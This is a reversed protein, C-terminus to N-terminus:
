KDKKEYEYRELIKGFRYSFFLTLFLNHNKDTDMIEIKKVFAELLIGAELAKIKQSEKGFEFNVALKLFAGPVVSLEDLGELFSARAYIQPDKKIDFKEVNIVVQSGSVFELVEYYIPKLVSLSAGFLGILNIEVGGKDKKSFRTQKWGFATRLNVCINKKGYVFRKQTDYSPNTTKIEKDHKLYVLEIGFLKKNYHNVYKGYRFDAGWGNSNLLIGFTRENRFLTKGQEMLEGQAKLELFFSLFFILLAFFKKMM